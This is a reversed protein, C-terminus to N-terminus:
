RLRLTQGVHIRDGRLGNLQRLRNLPVNMSLAIQSLTDGRRVTYSELVPDSRTDALYTNVPPKNEFYNFVGDAIAQALRKQYRSSNLLRAEDPNTIFGTEVLISPVDPSKLVAFAAQEVHDKHMVAFRSLNQHVAKAVEYSGARSATMSMDLLVNALVEDKDSLSLRVDGGGLLHADNEHKALWRGMESSAGRDSLTWVSAGRASPTKWGDAHISIFLDAGASRAKKVRDRLEVFRDDSRVMVGMYGKCADIIRDLEKAINLVIDKERISKSYVAGPDHGGHGADIVVVVPRKEVSQAPVVTVPIPESEEVPVVTVPQIAKLDVILRPRNGQLTSITYDAEGKLDFVLRAKDGRQSGRIQSVMGYGEDLWQSPLSFGSLDVVLRDPNKLVFHTEVDFADAFDVV